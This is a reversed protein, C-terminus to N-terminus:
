NAVQGQNRASVVEEPLVADAKNGFSIRIYTLVDAIQQDTLYQHTPMVTQYVQGNVEIKGELGKLLIGILRTKDGQVWSTQILPPYMGPVGSGNVQHCALCFKKYVQEGAESGAPGADKKGKCSVLFLVMLVIIFLSYKM